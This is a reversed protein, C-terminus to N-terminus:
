IALVAALFTPYAGRSKKRVFRRTGVRDSRLRPLDPPRTPEPLRPAMTRTNSPPYAGRRCTILTRLAASRARGAEPNRPNEGSVTLLRDANGAIALVELISTDADPPALGGLRQDDHV